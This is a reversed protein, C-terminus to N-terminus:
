QVVNTPPSSRWPELRRVALLMAIPPVNHRTITAMKPKMKKRVNPWLKSTAALLPCMGDAIAIALVGYKKRIEADVPLM